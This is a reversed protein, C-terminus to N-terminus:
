GHKVEKKKTPQEIPHKKIESTTFSMFPAVYPGHVLADRPDSDNYGIEAADELV